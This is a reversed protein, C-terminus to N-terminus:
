VSSQLGIAMQCLVRRGLSIVAKGRKEGLGAFAFVHWARKVNVQFGVNDVLDSIARVAVEEVGLREHGALLVRRIVTLNIEMLSSKQSENIQCISTTMVGDALLHDVKSHVPNPPQGIVAGSQLAEENEM